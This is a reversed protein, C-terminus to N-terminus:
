RAHEPTENSGRDGAEGPDPRDVAVGARDAWAVRKPRPGFGLAEAVVAALGGLAAGVGLATNTPPDVLAQAALGGIFAGITALVISLFLGGGRGRGRMLAWTASGLTLGVPIAIAILM